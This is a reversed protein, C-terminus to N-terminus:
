LYEKLVAARDDRGMQKYAEYEHQLSLVPIDLNNVTITTILEAWNNPDTWSGDAKRHQIDGMLEVEIGNIELSGFHSKITDSVTYEVPTVIYDELKQEIAYIGSQDSQIDIDNLGVPIGRLAFATSGTLVWPIDDDIRDLLLQIVEIYNDLNM